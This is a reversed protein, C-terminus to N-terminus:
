FQISVFYYLDDGEIQDPAYSSEAQKPAFFTLLDEAKVIGPDAPLTEPLEDAMTILEELSLAGYLLNKADTYAEQETLGSGTRIRQFVGTDTPMNFCEDIEVGHRIISYKPKQGM